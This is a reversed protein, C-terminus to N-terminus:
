RQPMPLVLSFESGRGPASKVEVTARHALAIHRVIALGLGTGGLERSRGKDVRYFREFIRAQHQPDIGCGQDTVRIVVSRDKAEADVQVRTGAESYKVANDILNILAQELMPANVRARLDKECRLQVEVNKQRAREACVEIADAVVGRL